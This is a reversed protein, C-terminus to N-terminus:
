QSCGIHMDAQHGERGACTLHPRIVHVPVREKESPLLEVHTATPPSTRPGSEEGSPGRPSKQSGEKSGGGASRLTVEPEPFGCREHVVTQSFTQWRRHRPSSSNAFVM